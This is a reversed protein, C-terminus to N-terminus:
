KEKTFYFNIIKNTHDNVTAFNSRKVGLIWLIINNKMCLIPIQKRQDSSIKKDNFIKKLRVESKRGFPIIRDGEECSRLVLIEPLLDLDFCAGRHLSNIDEPPKNMIKSNIRYDGLKIEQNIKWNWHISELSTSEVHLALKEDKLCLYRNNKLPILIKENTEKEIEKKFRKIFSRDPIFDFNLIDSIWYRLVRVLIANHMNKLFNIDVAKKEQIKAFKSKAIEELCQADETMTEIAKAVGVEANPIENYILKFVKNRFFNRRYDSEANTHDFRWDTIRKNELYEEIDNKAFKVLPRIIRLGYLKSEIRLSTLASTNSGRFLRLFLNEIRDGSHHGLAIAEVEPNKILENFKEFRLERALAEINGKTSCSDLNLKYELYEISNNRCFMRCWEADAISLKGRLGHEFHVAAIQFGFENALENLVILLCTSDAGGSFGVYIKKFSRDKLFQKISNKINNKM